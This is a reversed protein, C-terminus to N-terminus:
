KYKLMIRCANLIAILSVGVDAIVAEWLNAIGFVGLLIVLLKVGFAFIINQYVISKTTKAIKLATSIGSLKDNQIVIDATEIAIDSGLKGMAIGVDCLALAPADNIGDGVFAVNNSRNNKIHEIYKLKDEPLLDGKFSKINLEEALNSVISTKDGSLIEINKIGLKQLDEITQKAGSKPSDALTIYGALINDIALFIITYDTNILSKPVSINHIDMLRKNGCLVRKGNIITDIGFGAKEKTQKANYYDLNEKKAKKSIAIALPHNSMLEASASYQLMDEKSIGNLSVIDKVEFEGNTITGTKDFIINNIKTLAELYNGGKFLIGKKSAAGIGSFYSLPISVVLACPCSIVMFILGKYLWQNFDYFFSSNLLSYFFPIVTILFALSIVIPTYVSALKRILIESPAKRSSANKVMDIIRSLASDSYIKTIKLRVVKDIVIMGSLVEEDKHITSPISEGTLAATNFEAFDNLLIGDLPVREGTKIEIIDGPIINEPKVSFVLNNKVLFAVEPRLDLLKQINGKAKSVANEQFLEGISYFLMVAVGEAYEGIYFAGITALSMLTFENFFDRRKLASWSEKLVSYGVIIYATFYWLFSIIQNDSFSEIYKNFFFGSILMIFSVIPFIYEKHFGEKINNNDSVDCHGSCNCSM